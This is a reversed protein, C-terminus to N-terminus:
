CSVAIQKTLVRSPLLADIGWHSGYLLTDRCYEGFQTAVPSVCWCIIRQLIINGCVFVLLQAPNSVLADVVWSAATSVFPM